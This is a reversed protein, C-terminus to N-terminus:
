CFLFESKLSERPEWTNVMLTAASFGWHNEGVQANLESCLSPLPETEILWVFQERLAIALKGCDAPHAAFSDHICVIPFDCALVVRRVLTGDLSHVWNPPMGNSSKANNRISPDLYQYMRQSRRSKIEGTDQDPWSFTYSLRKLMKKGYRQSVLLGDPTHWSGHDPLMRPVQQFFSLLNMAAPLIERCKAHIDKAILTAMGYYLNESELSKQIGTISVGDVDVEEGKSNLSKIAQLLAQREANDTPLPYPAEGKEPNGQLEDKIYGMASRVTASYPLTMVTRKTFRRPIGHTVMWKSFADQRKSYDSLLLSAIHGYVDAKEQQDAPTETINVLSGGARDKAVASLIQLGSCTADMAITINTEYNLHDGSDIANVLETARQLYLAPEGGNLVKRFFTSTLPKKVSEKIEQLHTAVYNVRSGFDGKDFGAASAVGWCLWRFGEQGLPRKDGLTLVVKIDDGMQPNLYASKYYMRGRFDMAVRFYFDNDGVALAQRHARQANERRASLSRVDKAILARQRKAQSLLEKATPEIM